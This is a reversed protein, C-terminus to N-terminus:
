GAHSTDKKLFYLLVFAVAATALAILQSPSMGLIFEGRFDGRFFEVGFRICAYGLMYLVLIMGDKHPKKYFHQLIFFLILNLAVEYLQTPHLHVGLYQHAVLSHPDTFAVGWPLNTPRGHCCGALFCGIRGIAHGLPLAVIFFDATKLVPLKKKKLYYVTACIAVIAGGFFVFGYRFDKVANLLREAFTAGMEPWSVILYLLKAGIVASVFAVFIINWFTEKDLKIYRLRRYLYWSSIGYALAMMLGYSALEFPGIHFLIPHM